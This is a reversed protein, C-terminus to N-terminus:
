RDKLKMMRMFKKYATPTTIYYNYKKKSDKVKSKRDEPKTEKIITVFDKNSSYAMMTGSTSNYSFYYYENGGLDLAITIKTSGAKNKIEIKGDIYKIIQIKGISAIGIQGTSVFSKSRPNWKMEVDSIFLTKELEKPVKRFAGGHTAIETMLKEAKEIGLMKGLTLQFLESQLNLGDLEMRDNLDNAMLEMAKDNFYFDLPISIHLGASDDRKYYKMIGYAPADLQGTNFAIDLAGSAYVECTRKSLSLYDDTMNTRKLREDSSIRYEQMIKDYVLFGYAKFIQQDSQKRKPQLFSPYVRIGNSNMYMGAYLNSNQDSLPQELVPIRIDTPNIYADFFLRKRELTDCTHSIRTGGMFRLYEKTSELNVTGVFDFNKSLTFGADEIIEGVGYTAGTTDVDIKTLLIDHVLGDEGKYDILARGYYKKRGLIKFTGSHLEHYKTTTNVVMKANELNEMDAKKHITVKGSDPYIAADAVLIFQVDTAKILSNRRLFIAKQAFFTLSDQNPHTSIFRSGTLDMDIKDKLSAAKFEKSLEKKSSFETEDRDMYWTFKDMFCIYMNEPFEVKQAGGNAEFEGKREDFDIHAKFNETEYAFDQDYELDELEDTDEDVFKKLRFDVTDAFFESYKFRYLESVMEADDIMVVGKGNLGRPTLMLKGNMESQSDYMVMPQNMDLNNVEMLDNYPEWHMYLSDALVSPFEIPSRSREIEYNSLIANTSDPFFQFQSSYSVSTLYNLAGDGQLGANSLKIDATFKGKRGYVSKGSNSTRFIFGLSYDDMVRLPKDIDNFIGASVLYGTFEIGYTKFNDLSDITFPDIRYYFKDRSYVGGYISPHDYYVYADSKSNFIPYEPHSKRGSKNDARDILINGQLDGIVNKIRVQHYEGYRDPQFSQVRFSMSDIVPLDLEFKEYSFTCERASLDFKGAKIFGDFTFDRNKMVTIQKHAPAIFVDQSDSLFVKSVGQILLENNLLNLSANPIGVVTSYFGIVDYDIKGKSAEVYTRVRDKVYVYDESKDYIVFGKAALNMLLSTTVSKSMGIYRGYEEVTFENYGTKQVYNYVSKVPNVRDIGQLHNYRAQSFLSLSEFSAESVSGKQSVSKLDVFDEDLKWSMSEVFLDLQHYSDYFPTKSIGKEDRYLSLERKSDIYTMSLSPHYISDDELYIIVNVSQSQIRDKNFNFSEAGAWVFPQGKRKFIFYAKNEKSGIGLITKGKLSYGGKYDVNTFVEKIILDNRFSSFHPYNIRGLSSTMVKESLRGYLQFDFKRKDYFSVSDCVYRNSKLKINYTTLNAYVDAESLGARTWLVRGGEGKWKSKLPNCVGKTGYISGSDVKTICSLDLSDFIFVPYKGEMELKFNLNDTKWAFTGTKYLINSAFLDKSLDLYRLFNTKSRSSLLPMLTNLWKDYMDKGEKRRAVAWLADLYNKYEPFPRMRKRSMMNSIKIVKLKETENLSDSSWFLDFRDLYELVSKKKSKDIRSTMFEKLEYTYKDTRKSFKYSSQALLTNGLFGFIILLILCYKKM